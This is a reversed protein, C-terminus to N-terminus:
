SPRLNPGLKKGFSGAHHTQCWLTGQGSFRMVLGEGSGLMSGIGKASRSMKYTLTEQYAVLHGSDVVYEGDVPVEYVAGFSSILVKGQGSFKLWFLGEGSFLNKAGGFTTDMAVGREYALFSGGQAIITGTQGLDLALLDGPLSAAMLVLGGNQGATYENIMLSEGAVLRKLAKMVGGGKKPKEGEKAPGSDKSVSRVKTESTMAIMAGAEGYMVERPELLLHAAAAGPQKILNVHM